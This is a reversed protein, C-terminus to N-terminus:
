VCIACRSHFSRCVSSDCAPSTVPHSKEPLVRAVQEFSLVTRSHSYSAPVNVSDATDGSCPWLYPTFATCNEGSPVASAEHEM